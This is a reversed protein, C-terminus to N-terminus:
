KSLNIRRIDLARGSASDLELIVGQIALRDVAPEFHLPMQTLFRQIAMEKRIGIVSDLSGCMGCDTIYAAGRELITEDATQVHTHTGLVASVRGDLYHGLAKKESTAEAHVDVLIMPTQAKIEPLLSDSIRFPCDLDRMFVRGSLNLIGLKGGSASEVVVAGRGPVGPPYNAPRVIRVERDLLPLADKKDWIHNGSTFYDLGLARLEDYVKPTLGSGGAANEANALVLDFREERRLAPLFDQVARRGPRGIIDGLFLVKM